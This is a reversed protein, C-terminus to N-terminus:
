SKAELMVHRVIPKNEVRRKTPAKDSTFFRLNPGKRLESDAVEFASQRARRLGEEKRSEEVRQQWTRLNKVEASRAEMAWITRVAEGYVGESANSAFELVESIIGATQDTFPIVEDEMTQLIKLMGPLDQYQSWLLRLHADYHRENLALTSAASGLARIAPLVALAFSSSPFTKSLMSRTHAIQMPLVRALSAPNSTFTEFDTKASTGDQEHGLDPELNTKANQHSASIADSDTGVPLTQLATATPGSNGEWQMERLVNVIREQFVHWLELDTEANHMLERTEYFIIREVISLNRDETAAQLRQQDREESEARLSDRARGVIDHLAEPLKSEREDQVEGLAAGLIDDLKSARREYEADPLSSRKSQSRGYVPRVLDSRKRGPSEIGLLSEFAKRETPTITSRELEASPKPHKSDEGDFPIFGSRKGNVRSRGQQHYPRTPHIVDTRAAHNVSSSVFGRHRVIATTQYLFPLVFAEGSRTSAITSACLFGNRLTM